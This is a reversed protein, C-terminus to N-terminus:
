YICKETLIRAGGPCEPSFKPSKARGPIGAALIETRIYRSCLKASRIEASLKM